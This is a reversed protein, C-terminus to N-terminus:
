RPSEGRGRGPDRGRAVLVTSDDHKRRFDRHLVGAIVSPHRASLGPYRDLAWQTGLGDSHMILLASCDWPYVFEQVKRIVHGVTGNHSVMSTSRTEEPMLIVGAVNGVGCFRVERREHDVLAVALAAGRTKRLSDHAAHVIETLSGHLHRQFTAVAAHAADAAALGHGLGDALLVLSRGRADDVAWADGCVDEGAVPLSVAGLELGGREVRPESATERWLRAVMATGTEISSHIDFVAALRAIAGLGNGATGASSFGDSLCRGVDIMGPGRDLALIELGIRGPTAIGQIILVGDRAHKLLNTAAETAALAVRAAETENFGLRGALIQAVRRAEGVQSTDDIALSVPQHVTITV